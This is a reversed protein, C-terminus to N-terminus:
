EINHCALISKELQQPTYEGKVIYDAVQKFEFAKKKEWNTDSTSHMLVVAPKLAIEESKEEMAELFEWGDMIPMNIDLFLAIPASIGPYSAELQERSSTLLEIAETGGCAELIVLQLDTKKLFRVLIHRDVDSDDVILVTYPGQKNM